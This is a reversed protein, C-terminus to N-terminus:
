KSSDIQKRQKNVFYSCDVKLIFLHKEDYKQRTM